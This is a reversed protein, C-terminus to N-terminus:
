KGDVLIACCSEHYNLDIFIKGHPQFQWCSV